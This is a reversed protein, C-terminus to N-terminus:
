LEASEVSEGYWQRSIAKFTYTNGAILPVTTVYYLDTVQTALTVWTGTSQDYYIDYELTPIGGDFPKPWMIKIQTDTTVTPDNEM